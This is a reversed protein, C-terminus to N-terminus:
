WERDFMDDSPFEERSVLEGTDYCRVTITVHWDEPAVGSLLQFHGAWKPFDRHIISPAIIWEHWYIELDVCVIIESLLENEFVIDMIAHSIPGAYMLIYNYYFERSTELWEETYLILLGEGDHTLVMDINGFLPSFVPSDLAGTIFEDATMGGLLNAPVNVEYIGDENPTLTTPPMYIPIHGNANPTQKGPPAPAPELIDTGGFMIYGSIGGLLILALAACIVIIKKKM